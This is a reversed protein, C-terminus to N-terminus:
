LSLAISEGSGGTGGTTGSGPNGTSGGTGVGVEGVQGTGLNFYTIRGGAGGSGGNGGIGTGTANSGNGGAGGAASVANTATTGVLAYWGMYVWGGGGGGGGGSGGRNSGASNVANGGVGGIASIAGATTSAGRKIIRAFVYCIGASGGGGGAVGSAGGDGGGSGGGAGPAGGFLITYSTNNTNRQLDHKIIKTPYSSAITAGSRSGGGANAGGNGSGGAGGLGGAGGNSSTHSGGPASAQTGAGTAGAAGATAGTGTPVSGLNASNLNSGATQGSAATGNWHIASAGAASIDLIGSIYLRYGNTNIAGTSTLTVNAYFTDRALTTTGSSATLDGDSGDGFPSTDAADNVWVGDVNWLGDKYVAIWETANIAKLRVVSGIMISEVYGATASVAGGLRITDGTSAVVRIGDSDQCIFEFDLGAVATPLTHYNQATAGENTLLTRSEAFTLVNPAGSGATNAEVLTGCLVKGIANDSLGNNFQVVAAASRKYGADRNNGSNNLIINTGRVSVTGSGSNAELLLDSSSNVQTGTAFDPNITVFRTTIDNRFLRIGVGSPTGIKLEGDMSAIFSNTGDHYLQMEDTGAVGGPQRVVFKGDAGSGSKLGPQALVDGGNTNGSQAASGKITIANGAGSAPVVAEITQNGLWLGGGTETLLRLRADGGAYDNSFLQVEDAPATSPATGNAIAVVNTGSTGISAAGIKTNPFQQVGTWTNPNTLNISAVVAGTTPSITLTSDSNSVSSVASAATITITDTSADTTITINTGAVLTLTDSTSDAVVNSQGSVAITSFLNQDGTNTGGISADATFTLTRNSDGTTITLTRNATINSGPSIILSHSANTDLIKLGANTFTLTSLADAYGKTAADTSLVPTAVGRIRNDGLWLQSTSPISIFIGDTSVDISAEGSSVSTAYLGINAVGGSISGVLRVIQTPDSSFSGRVLTHSNNIGVMDLIFPDATNYIQPKTWTNTTNLFDPSAITISDTSADTTITINTGNVLTLTDSTSDAVVDSQGSVAVTGFLNQDGTNTGGISVDNTFTLTRNSDGPSITLTRNATLNSGCALLMVQGADTDTIGFGGSLATASLLLQIITAGGTFDNIGAWTQSGGLTGIQDGAVAIKGASVRTITTDSANGVNIGSFQPSASTSYDQSVTSDGAITLTRNTDGTVITLTRDATLNSGPSLILDHTANTDLIHLGTNSFTLTSLGDVYNKNTADTGAVPLSVQRIRTNNIFVDGPGSFFHGDAGVDFSSDGLTPHTAWMSIYPSNGVYEADIHCFQTPDSKFEARILTQVDKIQMLLLVYEDTDSRLIQYETFTNTLNTGAVTINADPMTIVRTTGTTLGDVEFRLQKTNDVSGQVIITSDSVPLSSGSAAVVWSPVVGPGGSTLVYGSTGAALNQWKGATKILIDGTAVSTINVDASLDNLRTAIFNAGPM